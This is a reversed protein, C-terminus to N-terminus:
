RHTHHGLALLLGALGDLPYELPAKSVPTGEIVRQFLYISRYSMQINIQKSNQVIRKIVIFLVGKMYNRHSSTWPIAVAVVPWGAESM